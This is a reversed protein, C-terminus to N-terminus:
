ARLAANNVLIDILGFQKVAADAMAQVSKADAVDGIHGIGQRPLRSERV